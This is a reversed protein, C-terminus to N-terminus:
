RWVELHNRIILLAKLELVFAVVFHDVDVRVSARGSIVGESELEVSVLVKLGHDKIVNQIPLCLLLCISNEKLVLHKSSISVFCVEKHSFAAVSSLQKVSLILSAACM